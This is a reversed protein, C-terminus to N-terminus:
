FLPHKRQQGDKKRRYLKEVFIRRNADPNQNSLDVVQRYCNKLLFFAGTM